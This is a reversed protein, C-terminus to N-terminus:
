ALVNRCGLWHKPNSVVSRGIYLNSVSGLLLGLDFCAGHVNATKRVPLTRSLLFNEMTRPQLLLHPLDFFVPSPTRTPYDVEECHHICHTPLSFDRLM